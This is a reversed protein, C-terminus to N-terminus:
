FCCRLMSTVFQLIHNILYNEFIVTGFKFTEFNRPHLLKGNCLSRAQSTACLSPMIDAYHTIALIKGFNKSITIM